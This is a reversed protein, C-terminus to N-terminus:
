ASIDAAARQATELALLGCKMRAPSLPMELLELMGSADLNKLTAIDKGVIYELLISAAAQSIACGDGDFAAEVITDGDCRLQVTLKDGCSTNHGDATVTPTTLTGHHRPNHYHDLIHEAYM